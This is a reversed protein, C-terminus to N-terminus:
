LAFQLNGPHTAREREDQAGSNQGNRPDGRRRCLRRLDGPSDNGAPHRSGDNQDV